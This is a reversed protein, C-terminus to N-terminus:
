PKGELKLQDIIKHVAERIFEEPVDEYVKGNSEITRCYADDNTLCSCSSCYNKGAKTDSLIDELPKGNILIINSEDIQDKSLITEVFSIFVNDSHYEDNLEVILQKLTKGTKSCRICTKNDLELHKWEIEISIM